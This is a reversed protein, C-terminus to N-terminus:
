SNPLHHTSLQSLWLTVLKLAWSPFRHKLIIISLWRQFHTVPSYVTGYLLRHPLCTPFSSVTLLVLFSSCSFFFSSSQASPLWLPSLTPILSLPYTSTTTTRAWARPKRDTTVPSPPSEERLSEQSSISQRGKQGEADQLASRSHPPWHPGNGWGGETCLPHSHEWHWQQGKDWGWDGTSHPM